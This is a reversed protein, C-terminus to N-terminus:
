CASITNLLFVYQNRHPPLFIKTPWYKYLFRKKGKFLPNQFVLQEMPEFERDTIFLRIAIYEFGWVLLFFLLVMNETQVPPYNLSLATRSFFLLAVIYGLVPLNLHNMRKELTNIQFYVYHPSYPKFKSEEYESSLM